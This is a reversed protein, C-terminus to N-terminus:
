RNSAKRKNVEPPQISQSPNKYITVRATNAIKNAILVPFFSFLHYYADHIEDERRTYEEEKAM